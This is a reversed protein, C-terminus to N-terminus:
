SESEEYDYHNHDPLSNLQPDYRDYENHDPLRNLQPDYRDYEDYLGGGRCMERLRGYVYPNEHAREHLQPDYCDYSDILGGQYDDQDQKYDHYDSDALGSTATLSALLTLIIKYM